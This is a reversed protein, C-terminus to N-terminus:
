RLAPLASASLCLGTVPAEATQDPTPPELTVSSRVFSESPLGDPLYTLSDYRLPGPIWRVLTCPYGLYSPAAIAPLCAHGSPPRGFLPPRAMSRISRNRKSVRMLYRTSGVMQVAHGRRGGAGKWMNSCGYRAATLGLAELGGSQRQKQIGLLPLTYGLPLTDGLSPLKMMVAELVQAIDSAALGGGHGSHARGKDAKRAFSQEWKRVHGRGGLLFLADQSEPNSAWLMADGARATMRCPPNADTSSTLAVGDPRAMSAQGIKTCDKSVPAGCRQPVVQADHSM